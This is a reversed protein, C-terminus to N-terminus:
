DKPSVKCELVTPERAEPHIIVKLDYSEGVEFLEGCSFGLVTKEFPELPPVSGVAVVEGVSIQVAEAEGRM